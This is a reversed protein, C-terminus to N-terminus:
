SALLNASSISESNLRKAQLSVYLASALFVFHVFLVRVLLDALGQFRFAGEIFIDSFLSVFAVGVTSWILLQFLSHIVEEKRSSVAVLYAVLLTSLFVVSVQIWASVEVEPSPRLDRVYDIATHCFTLTIGVQWAWASRYLAIVVFVLGYFAYSDFVQFFHLLVGGDGDPYLTNTIADVLWPFVYYVLAVLIGSLLWELGLSITKPAEIDPDGIEKRSKWAAYGLGAGFLFGFSFEMMKWWSKFLVEPLLSGLFIWLGGLGFGLGGAILGYSSFRAILRFLPKEITFRLYGILALAGLLLGAWSESRPKNVPDSFYILQPTNILAIGLVLGVILLVLSLVVTSKKLQHHILGLGLLAGGGLGWVAGKVTTGISGWWLTDPDRLFGLTQGYTMEGGLGIGVVGFVVVMSLFSPRLRLLIGIALAVMAGPIMAGFPGGGIYGRLGWGLLMAVGPLFLFLSLTPITPQKQMLRLQNKAISNFKLGFVILIMM